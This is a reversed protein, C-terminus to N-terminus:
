KPWPYLASATGGRLRGRGCRGGDNKGKVKNRRALRDDQGRRNLDVALM